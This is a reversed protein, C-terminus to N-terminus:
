TLNQSFTCKTFILVYFLFNLCQGQFSHRISTYSLDLLSVLRRSDMLWLTFDTLGLTVSIALVAVTALPLISLYHNFHHVFMAAPGGNAPSPMIFFFRLATSPNLLFLSASKRSLGSFLLFCFFISFIYFMYETPSIHLQFCFYQLKNLYGHCHTVPIM